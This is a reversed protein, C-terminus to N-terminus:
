DNSVESETEERFWQPFTRREFDRYHNWLERGGEPYQTIAGIPCPLWPTHGFLRCITPRAPYLFCNKKEMDRFLCYTITAGSDEAGPWPVVKDQSLVRTVEERPLTTLYARAEEWEARTIGFGDTCREGCGDCGSCTEHQMEQELATRAARLQEWDHTTLQVLPSDM